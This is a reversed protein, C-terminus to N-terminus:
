RLSDNLPLSQASDAPFRDPDMMEREPALQGSKGRHPTLTCANLLILSLMLLSYKM